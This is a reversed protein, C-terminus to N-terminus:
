MAIAQVTAVPAASVRWTSHQGRHRPVATRREIRVVAQDLRALRLEDAAADGALAGRELLEVALVPPRDGAVEVAHEAVPGLEVVEHLLDEDDSEPPHDAEAAVRLERGPQVADAHVDSQPPQARLRPARRR